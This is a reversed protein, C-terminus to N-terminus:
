APTWVRQDRLDTLQCPTMERVRNFVLSWGRENFLGDHIAFGEM